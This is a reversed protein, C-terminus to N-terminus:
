PLNATSLPSGKHIDDKTWLIDRQGFKKIRQKDQWYLITQVLFTAFRSQYHIPESAPICYFHLYRQFYLFRFSTLLIPNMALLNLRTLLVYATYENIKM